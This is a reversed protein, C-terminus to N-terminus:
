GSVLEQVASQVRRLAPQLEDESPEAGFLADPPIPAGIRMRITWPIWAVFAPLSSAVLAWALLVRWPWAVSLGFLIAAAGLVGLLSVPYRKVGALWPIVLLYPLVRSRWLVPATFHSGRIGMPVIPIRAKRALRLFGVRGGFDVTHAQWVPRFAEHDGGPFVLLPVGAALTADASAYSSPVAGAHRVFLCAPWAHFIFPHAFGALPRDEGVRDLYLVAFSVLEAVAMGGSHNAVLLFPGTRPLSEIGELVPRHAARVLPAFFRVVRVFGPSPRGPTGLKAHRAWREPDM